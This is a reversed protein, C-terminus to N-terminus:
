LLSFALLASCRRGLGPRGDIGPLDASPRSRRWPHRSIPCRRSARALQYTFVREDLYRFLHFPEVSVYTGHLGRKLLSWVNEIGNTHVRGDVYKETHDIVQHLYEGDLGRYGSWADTYLTAGPSVAERVRPQITKASVNPVVEAHVKGTRERMGLIPTKNATTVRGQPIRKRAAAHM